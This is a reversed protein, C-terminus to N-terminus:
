AIIQVILMINSFCVQKTDNRLYASKPSDHPFVFILFLGQLVIFAFPLGFIMRWWPDNNNQDVEKPDPLTFAMGFAL